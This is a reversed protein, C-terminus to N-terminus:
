QCLVLEKEKQCLVLIGVASMVSAHVQERQLLIQNNQNIQFSKTKLVTSNEKAIVDVNIQVNKNKDMRSRAFESLAKLGVM